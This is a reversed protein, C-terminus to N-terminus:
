LSKFADIALIIKSSRIDDDHTSICASELNVQHLLHRRSGINGEGRGPSSSGPATCMHAGKYVCGCESCMRECIHVYGYVRVCECM